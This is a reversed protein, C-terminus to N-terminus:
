DLSLTAGSVVADNGLGESHTLTLFISRYTHMHTHRSDSPTQLERKM